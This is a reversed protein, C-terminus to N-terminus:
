CKDGEACLKNIILLLFLDEKLAPLLPWFSARKLKDLYAEATRLGGLSSWWFSDINKCDNILLLTEVFYLCTLWNHMRQWQKRSGGNWLNTPEM